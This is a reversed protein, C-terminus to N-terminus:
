RLDEGDSVVGCNMQNADYLKVWFRIGKVPLGEQELLRFTISDYDPQKARVYIREVRLISGAKLTHLWSNGVAKWSPDFHGILKLLSYNRQEVHVSFTWPRNLVLKNGISPIFLNM